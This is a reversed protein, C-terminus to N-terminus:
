AAVLDLAALVGRALGTGSTHGVGLLPDVPGGHLVAALEPVCEGRTAHHLLVTSVFTTRRPALTRVTRAFPQFAQAGLARLTVLAGMLIDDGLPTLGPGRGLLDEVTLPGPAPVRASLTARLRGPDPVAPRSARWWRAVRGEFAPLSVTGAGALGRRGVPTGPLRDVLVACPVRVAYRDALCLAPHEPDGTRLYVAHPTAVAVEVARRPGTLLPGVADSAGM